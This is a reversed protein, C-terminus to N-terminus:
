TSLRSITFARFHRHPLPAAPPPPCSIAHSSRSGVAAGERRSIVSRSLIFCVFGLLQSAWMCITIRCAPKSSGATGCHTLDACLPDRLLRLARSGPGKFQPRTHCPERMVQYSPPRQPVASAPPFCTPPLWRMRLPNAPLPEGRIVCPFPAAPPPPWLFM